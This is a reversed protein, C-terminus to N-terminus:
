HPRSIATQNPRHRSRGLRAPFDVLPDKRHAQKCGAIRCCIRLKSVQNRDSDFEQVWDTHDPSNSEDMQKRKAHNAWASELRSFIDPHEQSVDVQETRDADVDFLGWSVSDRM